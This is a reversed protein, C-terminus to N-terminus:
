PIGAWTMTATDTQRRFANQASKRKKCPKIVKLQNGEAVQDYADFRAKLKEEIKAGFAYVQKCIGLNEYQAQTAKNYSM